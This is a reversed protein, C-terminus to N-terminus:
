MWTCLFHQLTWAIFWMGGGSFTAKERRIQWYQENCTYFHTNLSFCHSLSFPSCNMDSRFFIHCHFRFNILSIYLCMCVHYQPTEKWMFFFYTCSNNVWRVRKHIKKGPISRCRLFDEKFGLSERESAFSQTRQPPTPQHCRKM